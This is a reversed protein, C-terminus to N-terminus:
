WIRIKWCFLRVKPINYGGVGGERDSMSDFFVWCYGSDLSESDASEGASSPGPVQGSKGPEISTEPLAPGPLATMAPDKHLTASPRPLTAIRSDPVTVHGGSQLVPSGHGGSQIIPSAHQGSQLTPNARQGSQLTPNARQGSRVRCYTVYHSTHICLVASLVM